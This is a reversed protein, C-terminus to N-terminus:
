ALAEPVRCRIIKELVLWSLALQTNSLRLDQSVIGARM